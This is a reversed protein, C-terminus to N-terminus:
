AKRMKMCRVTEKEKKKKEKKTKQRKLAAGAAYPLEWALLGIPAIAAPRHWLRLLALDLGLKRDVGCSVAVGSGWGVVLGPILGSVEYNRTPNTEATGRRSSGIESNLLAGM